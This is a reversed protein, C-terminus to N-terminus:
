TIDKNPKKRQIIRMLAGSTVHGQIQGQTKVISSGMCVHM